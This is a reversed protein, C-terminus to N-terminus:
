FALVVAVKFFFVNLLKRAHQSEKEGKERKKKEQNRKERKENEGGKKKERKEKRNKSVALSLAAFGARHGNLSGKASFGQELLSALGLYRWRPCM